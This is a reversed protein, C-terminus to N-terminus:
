KLLCLRTSDYDTPADIAMADAVTVGDAYPLLVSAIADPGRAPHCRMFSSLVVDTFAHHLYFLPDDPSPMSSMQNAVLLHPM